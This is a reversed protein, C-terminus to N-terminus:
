KKRANTNGCRKENLRLIEYMELVLEFPDIVRENEEEMVLKKNQLRTIGTRLITSQMNLKHGKTIEFDTISQLSM